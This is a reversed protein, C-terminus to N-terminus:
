EANLFDETQGLWSQMSMERFMSAASGLMDRAPHLLNRHKANKGLAFLCRAQLPRLTLERAVELSRQFHEGAQEFSAVRDCHNGLWFLIWGIDARQGLQDALALARKMASWAEAVKGTRSYADGLLALIRPGFAYVNKSEVFRWARDFLALADVPHGSLSLVEALRSTMALLPVSLDAAGYNEIWHQVHVLAEHENGRLLHIAGLHAEAIARLYLIDLSKAFSVAHKAHLLAQDFEGLEAFAYASNALSHSYSVKAFAGQFVDGQWPEILRRAIQRPEVGVERQFCNIATRFDGRFWHPVGLSHRASIRLASEQLAEAIELARRGHEIAETSNGMHSSSISVSCHILTQRRPDNLANVFALAEHGLELARAFEGLPSLCTRVALRLDIAQEMTAKTRPLHSLAQIAREVHSWAERNASRRIAKEGASRSYVLAKEWLEGCFAHHALRELHESIRDPYLREISEVICAHLEIRRAPQLSNYAVEHTLAHKFTYERDPFLSKEYLFEGGQLARLRLHLLEEPVEVLAHLLMYPLDKGIVAATQLLLRVDADLRNIRAALIAEVTVPVEIAVLPAILQYAGTDGQLAGTEVLARVSEELFLPNGETRELIPRRAVDLSAHDGLLAKLMGRACEENLPEARLQTYYNKAGWQHQYEPRYSVLVLARASPLSDILIDLFAQTESDIWHLDEFVLLLLHSHAERLFIRKCADFTRLRKRVPDLREWQSEKTSLDFLSLIPTLLLEIQQNFAILKDTVKRQISNGDDREQIGFYMKLLDIIPLLPTTSGHVLARCSLVKWDRMREAHLQEYILRSKGVGPEGVIAFIQGFGRAAQVLREEITELERQRGVFKVLPRGGLGFGTREQGFLRYIPGARECTVCQAFEFRRELFPFAAASVLISSDAGVTSVNALSDNVVESKQEWQALAIDM